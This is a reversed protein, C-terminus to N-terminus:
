GKHEKIKTSPTRVVGGAERVPELLQRRMEAQSLDHLKHHAKIAKDVLSKTTVHQTADDAFVHGFLRIAHARLIPGDIKENGPYEVPGYVRGDGIDIPGHEKAYATLIDGVRATLRKMAQWQGYAITAQEADLLGCWGEVRNALSGDTMTLGLQQQAPCAQFAPCYRCWSGPAVDAVTVAGRGMPSDHDLCPVRSMWWQDIVERMHVLRLLFASLEFAHVVASQRYVSGGHVYIAEVKCESLQYARTLALAGALLQPNRSPHTVSRGTKYDGVYGIAGIGVADLTGCIEDETADSYDRWGDGDPLRRCLGTRVDIAFPIESSVNTPLEDLPIAECLARYEEPVHELATERDTLVAGNIYHHVANGLPAYGGSTDAHPLVESAPCALARELASFTPLTM